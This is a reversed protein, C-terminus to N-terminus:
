ARYHGVSGCRFGIGPWCSFGTFRPYSSAVAAAGGGGLRLAHESGTGSVLMEEGGTDQPQAIALPRPISTDGGLRRHM